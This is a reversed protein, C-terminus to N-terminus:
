HIMLDYLKGAETRCAGVGSYTMSNFSFQCALSGGAPETLYAKGNGGTGAGYIAGTAVQGGSTGISTGVFGDGGQLTYEGAYHKGALDVQLTGHYSVLTMPATGHGIAGTGDQPTLVIQHACGALALASLIALARRM